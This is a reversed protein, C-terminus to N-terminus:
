KLAKAARLMQVLANKPLHRFNRHLRRIAVRARRPIGLWLKRREKENEPFGPLPMKDMLDAEEDAAKTTDADVTADGSDAVDDIPSSSSSSSSGKETWASREENDEETGVFASAMSKDMHDQVVWDTMVDVFESEVIDDTSRPNGHENAKSWAEVRQSLSSSNTAFALDGKCHTVEQEQQDWRCAFHTDAILSTVGRM